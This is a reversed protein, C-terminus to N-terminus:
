KKQKKEYDEFFRLLGKIPLVKNMIIDRKENLIIMTPAGHINYAEQYDINVNPGGVNVWNFKHERVYKKWKNVDSEYGVAYVEFPRNPTTLLSDYLTKLEASQEQCHHCDPDWFWLIVYKQPFRHSSIWDAPNNSQNTDAMWLEQGHAGILSQRIRKYNHNMNYLNGETVWPCRGKQYYEGQLHCWVADWGINRTSRYYRPEIHDFVYRLLVTDQGIRAALRDIDAKITDSEAYYLIGFFFYNVKNFLNPSYLIEETTWKGRNEPSFLCDWYHMRFWTAKDHVSDPVPADDFLNVLDFFLVPKKPHRAEKEYAEMREVLAKEDAEAQAKTSEEKKRKRIEEMQKKADSITAMYSFMQSNADSGKVKVSSPTMKADGTITFQRSDDISFDGISKERNQHVLAYIGRDWKKKGQFTYSGDKARRASDEIQLQDRFHRAIYLVTDTAGELKFVMKYSQAGAGGVIGTFLLVFTLKKIMMIGM